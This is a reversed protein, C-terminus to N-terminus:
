KAPENNIKHLQKEDELSVECWLDLPATEKAFAKMHCLQKLCLGLPYSMTHATPWVKLDAWLIHLVAALKDKFLISNNPNGLNIGSIYPVSLLTIISFSTQHGWDVATKLQSWDSDKEAPRKKNFYGSTSGRTPADTLDFM